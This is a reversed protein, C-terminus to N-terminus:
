LQIEDDNTSNYLIYSTINKDPPKMYCLSTCLYFYEILFNGFYIGLNSGVGFLYCRQLIFFSCQCSLQILDAFSLLFCLFSGFQFTQELQHM